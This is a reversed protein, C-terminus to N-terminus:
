VNGYIFNKDYTSFFLSLEFSTNNVLQTSKTPPKDFNCSDVHTSFITPRQTFFIKISLIYKRLKKICRYM